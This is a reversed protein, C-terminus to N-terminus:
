NTSSCITSLVLDKMFEFFTLESPPCSYNPFHRKLHNDVKWEWAIEIAHIIAIEVRSLTTYYKTAIQPYVNEYVDDLYYEHNILMMLVEKIYQFGRVHPPIGIDVISKRIAIECTKNDMEVILREKYM